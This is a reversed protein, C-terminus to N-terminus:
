VQCHGLIHVFGSVDNLVLQVIAGNNVNLGNLGQQMVKAEEILIFLYVFEHGM